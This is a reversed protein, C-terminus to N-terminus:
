NTLIKVLIIISPVVQLCKYVWVNSGACVYDKVMGSVMGQLAGGQAGRLGGGAANGAIVSGFLALVDFTSFAALLM